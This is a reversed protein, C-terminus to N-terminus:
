RVSIRVRPGPIWGAVLHLSVEGSPIGDPLHFDVRYLDRTRPWGAQNVPEAAITEVVVQVPSIVEALPTDPFVEGFVIGNAPGLARAQVILTEGRRAPRSATVQTFDDSHFVAPGAANVLIEPRSAPILQLYHRWPQVGSLRRTTPDTQMSVLRVKGSAPETSIQGRVGLYAGTGGIVAYNNGSPAPPGGPLAPPGGMGTAAIMGVLTGDPRQIEYYWDLCPGRTADSVMNAGPTPNPNLQVTAGRLVYAGRAPAGNISVIDGAGVIRPFPPFRSVMVMEPSSAYRALDFVNDYYQVTNELVVELLVPTEQARVALAGLALTAIWHRTM